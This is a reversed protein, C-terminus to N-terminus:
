GGQDTQPLWPWTLPLSVPHRMAATRQQHRYRERVHPLHYARLQSTFFEDWNEDLAALVSSLSTKEVEHAGPSVGEEIEDNAESNDLDESVVETGRYIYRNPSKNGTQQRKQAGPLPCTASQRRRLASDLHRHEVHASTNASRPASGSVRLDPLLLHRSLQSGERISRIESSESCSLISRISMKEAGTSGNNLHYDPGKAEGPYMHPAM